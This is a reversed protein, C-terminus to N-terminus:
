DQDHVLMDLVLKLTPRGSKMTWVPRTLSFMGLGDPLQLLDGSFSITGACSSVRM